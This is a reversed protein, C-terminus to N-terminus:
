PVAPQWMASGEHDDCAIRVARGDAHQAAVVAAVAADIADHGWAAATPPLELHAALAALRQRRGAVTLKNAPRHGLLATFAGFPFVELAEGGLAAWLDFGVQMWPPVPDDPGPAIWPVAIGHIRLAVEACRAPRFKAAVREDIRHRGESPGGPADIAVTAGGCWAVVETVETATFVEAGGVAWRGGPAREAAVAWIASAGLDIGV